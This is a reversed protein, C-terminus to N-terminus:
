AHRRRVLARLKGNREVPTWFFSIALHPFLHGIPVANRKIVPLEIAAHYRGISGGITQKSRLKRGVEPEM